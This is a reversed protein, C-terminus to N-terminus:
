FAVHMCFPYYNFLLLLLILASSATTWCPRWLAASGTPATRSWPLPSFWTRRRCSLSASWCPGPTPGSRTQTTWCTSCPATSATTCATWWWPTGTAWTGDGRPVTRTRRRPFVFLLFFSFPMDDSYSILYRFQNAM